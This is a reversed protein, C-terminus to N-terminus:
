RTGREQERAITDDVEALGEAVAVLLREIYDVADEVAPGPHEVGLLEARAKSLFTQAAKLRRRSMRMAGVTGGGWENEFRDIKTLAINLWRKARRITQADSTM